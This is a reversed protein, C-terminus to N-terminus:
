KGWTSIWSLHRQTIILSIFLLFFDLINHKCFCENEFWWAKTLYQVKTQNLWCPFVTVETVLLWTTPPLYRVMFKDFYKHFTCTSNHFITHVSYERSCENAGSRVNRAWAKKLCLVLESVCRVTCTGTCIPWRVPRAVLVWFVTFIGSPFRHENETQVVLPSPNYINCWEYKELFVDKLCLSNLLCRRWWWCWPFTSSVHVQIYGM